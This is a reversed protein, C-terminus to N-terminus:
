APGIGVAEHDGKEGIGFGTLGGGIGCRKDDRFVAAFSVPKVEDVVARGVVLRGEGREPLGQAAEAAAKPDDHIPLGEAHGQLGVRDFM